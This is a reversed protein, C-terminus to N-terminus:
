AFGAKALRSQNRKIQEPDLKTSLHSVMRNSNVPNSNLTKIYKKLPEFSESLKKHFIVLESLGQNKAGNNAANIAKAVGSNNLGYFIVEARATGEINVRAIEKVMEAAKERYPEHRPQDYLSNFARQFQMAANKALQPAGANLSATADLSTGLVNKSFPTHGAARRESTEINVNM